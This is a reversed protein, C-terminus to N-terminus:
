GSWRDPVGRATRRTRSGRIMVGLGVSGLVLAWAAIGGASPGTVPLSGPSLSDPAAVLRIGVNLSVRQGNADVGNVQLTHDGATLESGLEIRGSAESNEAVTLRGVTRAPTSLWLDVITATEFGTVTVSLGQGVEFIPISTVDGDTSVDGEEVALSVQAIPHTVIWVGPDSSDVELETVGSDHSSTAAGPVVVPLRGEDDLVPTPLQEAM